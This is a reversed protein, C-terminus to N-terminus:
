TKTLMDEIGFNNAFFMSVFVYALWGALNMAQGTM